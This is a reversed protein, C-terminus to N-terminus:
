QSMLDLLELMNFKDVTKKIGNNHCRYIHRESKQTNYEIEKFLLGDIYRSKMIIYELGSLDAAEFIKTLLLPHKQGVRKLENIIKKM